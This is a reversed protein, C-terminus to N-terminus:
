TCYSCDIVRYTEGQISVDLEWFLCRAKKCLMLQSTKTLPTNLCYREGHLLWHLMPNRSLCTLCTGKVACNWYVFIPLLPFVRWLEHRVFASLLLFFRSIHSILVRLLLCITCNFPQIIDSLIMRRDVPPRVATDLHKVAILVIDKHSVTRTFM